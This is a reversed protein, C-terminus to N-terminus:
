PVIKLFNGFTLKQNEEEVRVGIKFSVAIRAVSIKASGVYGRSNKIGKIEPVSLVV